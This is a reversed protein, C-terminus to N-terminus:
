LYPALSMCAPIVVLMGVTTLLMIGAMEPEYAGYQQAFLVSPTATPMASAVFTATALTGVMHGGRIMGFFLAPKVAICVLSSLIVSFSTLKMPYAALTLGSAFIAVGSASVALPALGTSVFSSLHWGSLAFVTGIVPAWVLPNLASRSITRWVSPVTGPKPAAAELLFVAVSVQTLNTVLAAMGVVGSAIQSGYLPVLVTLGYIPVATSSVAYAFLTAKLKEMRRTRLIWCAVLFLASYGILMVLAISGQELLLGRDLHAMGIFLTAPLAYQLALRSFGQTQETTFRHHKGAAFGLALVLLVPTIASILLHWKM